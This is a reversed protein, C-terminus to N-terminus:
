KITIKNLIYRDNNKLFEYEYYKLLTYKDKINTSNIIESINVSNLTWSRTNDLSTYGVYERIILKNDMEEKVIHSYKQYNLNIKKTNTLLYYRKTEQNYVYVNDGLTFADKIYTIDGFLKKIGNDLEEELIYVENDITHKDVLRSGLALKANNSLDISLLGNNMNTLDENSYVNTNEVANLVLYEEFNIKVESTENSNEVEKKDPEKNILGYVGYVILLVGIITLVIDSFRFTKQPLPEEKKRKRKKGTNLEGNVIVPVIKDNEKKM